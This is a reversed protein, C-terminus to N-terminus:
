AAKLLKIERELAEVRQKLQEKEVYLQWIAGSHLRSMGSLNVFHHGDDNFAVLGAEELMERNYRVFRDFQSEVVSAPSRHLEVARVLQCDDYEDWAWAHQNADLYLDGAATLIMRTNSGARVAFINTAGTPATVSTGSKYWADVRVFATSTAAKTNDYNAGIGRLNLGCKYETVGDLMLGGSAASQKGFSAYANTDWYTTMGHDVDTSQLVLIPGDDTGQQITLSGGTCKSSPSHTGITFKGGPQEPRIRYWSSWSGNYRGRIVIGRAITPGTGYPIGFQTLNGSGTKSSYEFSLPHFYASDGPGNSATGLLLTYGGGARANSSDNWDLTGGTSVAGFGGALLGRVHMTDNPVFYFNTQSYTSDWVVDWSATMYVDMIKTGNYNFTQFPHSSEYYGSPKYHYLQGQEPNITTSGACLGGGIRADAAAHIEGTAPSTSTGVRLGDHVSLDDSITVQASIQLLPSDVTIYNDASMDIIGLGDDVSVLLSSTVAGSSSKAFLTIKGYNYPNPGSTVSLELNSSDAVQALFLEMYNIGPATYGYLGGTVSSGDKFKYSMRNTRSSGVAISIGDDDLVVANSGATLKGSTNASWQVTGSNYGAIRGMGSENWIKLGTGPSTFSGTTGQYIGGGTGLTLPKTFEAGADSDFTFVADGGSDNIKLVGASDMYIRNTGGSDKLAFVGSSNIV